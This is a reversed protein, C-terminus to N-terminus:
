SILDSWRFLQAFVCPSLLIESISNPQLLDLVLLLFLGGMLGYNKGCLPISVSLIAGIPYCCM